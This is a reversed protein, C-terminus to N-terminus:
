KLQELAIQMMKPFDTILGNVGLDRLYKAREIDNVTWISIALDATQTAKIMEDTAL